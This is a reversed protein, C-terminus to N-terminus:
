AFLNFFPVFSSPTPLSISDSPITLIHITRAAPWIGWILLSLSFALIVIAAALRWNAKM